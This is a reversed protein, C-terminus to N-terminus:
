SQVVSIMVQLFIEPILLQIVIKDIIHSASHLGTQEKVTINATSFQCYYCSTKTLLSLLYSLSFVHPLNKYRNM